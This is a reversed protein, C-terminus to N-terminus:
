NPSMAKLILKRLTGAHEREESAFAVCLERLDHDKMGEAATLYSEAMENERNYASRLSVLRGAVGSASKSVPFTDGTLLFFELQLREVHRREEAAMKLLAGKAPKSFVRALEAYTEAARADESILKKLLAADSAAKDQPVHVGTVGKKGSGEGSAKVRGWISDFNDLARKLDADM